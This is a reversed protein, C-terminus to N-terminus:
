LDRTFAEKREYEGLQLLSLARVRSLRLSMTWHEKRAERLDKSGTQRSLGMDTKGGNMEWSFHLSYAKCFHSFHLPVKGRLTFLTLMQSFQVHFRLASLAKMGKLGEKKSSASTPIWFLSTSQEHGSLEKSTLVPHSNMYFMCIYFNVHKLFWKRWVEQEGSLYSPHLVVRSESGCIQLNPLDRKVGHWARTSYIAVPCPTVPQERQYNTEITTFVYAM